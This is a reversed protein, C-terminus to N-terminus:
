MKDLNLSVMQVQWFPLQLLFLQGWGVIRWVLQAVNSWILITWYWVVVDIVFVPLLLSLLLSLLSLLLMHSSLLLLLSLSLLSPLSSSLLISSSKRSLSLLTVGGASFWLVDEVCSNRLDLHLLIGEWNISYGDSCVVELIILYNIM